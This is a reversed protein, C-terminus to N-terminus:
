IPKDPAVHGADQEASATERLLRYYATGLGHGGGVIVVDYHSKPTARAWQRPWGRHRRLGHRLIQL